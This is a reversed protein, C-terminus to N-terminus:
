RRDKQAVVWMNSSMSNKVLFQQFVVGLKNWGETLIHRLLEDDDELKFEGSIIKKRILEADLRGPTFVELTKFGCSNLLVGISYTNFYNLHEHDVTDSETKLTKVDFGDGNPCSLILLGDHNLMRHIHSLFEKPSFVHEIVEFNVIVDFKSDPSLQIEEIPSEITDINRKRCTAALNPTPEIAVVKRFAGRSQIEACYTGFGAGVELLSDTKTKYKNCIEITKNARPVIINNHRSEESAPFIVNNWFEYNKSNRYFWKLVDRSPRPNVYMTHCNRCRVYSFGRKLFQFEYDDIDCAPCKCKVFENKRSLLMEIDESLVRQHDNDFRTPRINDVSFQRFNSVKM